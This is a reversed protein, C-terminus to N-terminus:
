VHPKRPTGSIINSQHEKLLQNWPKKLMDLMQAQVEELSKFGLDKEIEDPTLGEQQLKKFQPEFREKIFDMWAQIDSTLDFGRDALAKFFDLCGSIDEKFTEFTWGDPQLVLRMLRSPVEFTHDGNSWGYVTEQEKFTDLLKEMSLGMETIPKEMVVMAKSKPDFYQIYIDSQEAMELVSKRQQADHQFVHLESALIRWPRAYGQMSGLWQSQEDFVVLGYFYPALPMSGKSLVQYLPSTGNM